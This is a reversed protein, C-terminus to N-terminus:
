AIGAMVQDSLRSDGRAVIAAMVPAPDLPMRGHQRLIRARALEDRLEDRLEADDGVLEGLRRILEVDRDGAIYRMILREHEYAQSTMHDTRSALDDGPLPVPDSAM